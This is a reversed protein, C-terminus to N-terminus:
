AHHLSKKKTFFFVFLCLYFIFVAEPPISSFAISSFPIHSFFKAGGILYSIFTYPFFFAYPGLSPLLFSLFFSFASSLFLFPFIPVLMLNSLPSILSFNHFYFLILGLTALYSALTMLLIERMKFVKPFIQFKEQWLPIFEAMGWVSLFSLQFGIDDRLLYPNIFLMGAAAFLLIPTVESLRGHKKAYLAIWGMIAARMASPPAGILAIYGWILVSVLIFHTNKSLFFYSAFSAIMLILLTIHSGSIAILHMIGSQIFDDQLDKPMLGRKGFIIANLVSAQPEPMNHEIREILNQKFSFLKAFLFNGKDRGLIEIDPYFLLSYIDYRALYRDYSFGEFPEPSILKGTALVEDGYDYKQALRVTILARGRVQYKKGQFIFQDACVTFKINHIREDKERCVIGRLTGERGNYFFLQSPDSAVPIAGVYRWVGLFFFIGGFILLQLMPHRLSFFLVLFVLALLYLYYIDLTFFSRVAIGLIFFISGFLLFDHKHTAVM